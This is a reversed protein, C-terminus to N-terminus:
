GSQYACQGNWDEAPDIWCGGRGQCTPFCHPRIKIGARSARYLDLHAMGDLGTFILGLRAAIEALQAYEMGLQCVALARLDKLLQAVSSDEPTGIFGNFTEM